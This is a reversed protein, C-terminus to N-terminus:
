LKEFYSENDLKQQEEFFDLFNFLIRQFLSENNKQNNDSINIENCMKQMLTQIAAALCNIYLSVDKKYKQSLLKFANPKKPHICILFLSEALTFSHFLGEPFHTRCLSILHEWSISSPILTSLKKLDSYTYDINQRDYKNRIMIKKFDFTHQDIAYQPIENDDFFNIFKLYKGYLVIIARCLGVLGMKSKLSDIEISRIKTIVKPIDQKDVGLFLYDDIHYRMVPSGFFNTGSYSEIAKCEYYSQISGQQPYDLM